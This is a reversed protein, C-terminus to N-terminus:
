SCSSEIYEAFRPTLSDSFSALPEYEWYDVDQERQRCIASEFRIWEESGLVGRENAFYASEYIGWLVHNTTRLQQQEIRTLSQFGQERWKDRLTVVSPETISARWENTQRMLEQFTQAQLANTNEKMGLVLFVLTIIVAIASILEASLAWKRLQKNKM